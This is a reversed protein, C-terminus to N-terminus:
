FMHWDGQNGHGLWCQVIWWGLAFICDIRACLMVQLPSLASLYIDFASTSPWVNAVAISDKHM